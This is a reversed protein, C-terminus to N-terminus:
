LMTTCTVVMVVAGLKTVCKGKADKKPCCVACQRAPRVKMDRPSIFGPFRQETLRLLTLNLELSGLKSNGDESHHKQIV